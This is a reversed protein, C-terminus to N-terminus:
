RPIIRVYQYHVVGVIDSLGFGVAVAPNKTGDLPSGIIIAEPNGDPLGDPGITISIGGRTNKGTVPWDGYVWFEGFNNPFSTSKPTNIQVLQGELSEWFDLGYNAPDLTANVVEIRSANNPVSLFGDPGNDLASLQQTPPKRDKGLILPTVTNNSSLVVINRPQTLETLFM